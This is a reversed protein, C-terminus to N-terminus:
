LYNQRDGPDGATKREVQEAKGNRMRGVHAEVTRKHRGAM